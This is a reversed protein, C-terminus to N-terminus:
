TECSYTVSGDSSYYLTHIATGSTCRLTAGKRDLTYSVPCLTEIYTSSKIEPEVGEGRGWEYMAVDRRLTVNFAAEAAQRAQQSQQVAQSDEESRTLLWRAYAENVKADAEFYATMLEPIPSGDDGPYGVLTLSERRAIHPQRVEAALAELIENSDGGTTVTTVTM